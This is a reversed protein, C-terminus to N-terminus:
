RARVLVTFGQSPAAVARYREAIWRGTARAYEVGFRQGGFESLPRDSRVIVDPPAARWRALLGEDAAADPLEMPLYSTMSDAAALGAAYALGAGQPVVAVRTGQPFKALAAVLPAEPGAREVRLRGRPTALEVRQAAWEGASADHSAAAVGLLLGAAAAPFMGAAAGSRLRRPLDVAVLAALCVLAPPVLYFGYQAPGVRLPIRALCALAFLWVLVDPLAAAPARVLRVVRVALGAVLVAPLARLAVDPGLARYGAFAAAGVGLAGATRAAEGTGELARAAVLAALCLAALAALSTEAAALSVPLEAVGMTTRVYARSGANALAGLHETFLAGGTLVQFRGYVVAVAASAALYGVAHVRRLSRWSALAFALHIAAAPLLVELKSLAAAALCAASGLFAAAGGERLHRLLLLLSGTAAVIGYTASFNFPLVFNFIPVPNLKAFACAYVFAVAVASAVWRPVASRALVYLAVTMTAATALGAGALVDISVGFVRYLAANLHPALPGWYYRVDAYLVQGEALRRPVELERGTDVLLSGWRRWGPVAAHAFAAAVLAPPGWREWWREGRAARASSGSADM